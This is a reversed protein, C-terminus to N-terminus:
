KIQFDIHWVLAQNIDDCNDTCSDADNANSKVTLSTLPIKTAAFILLLIGIISSYSKIMEVICRSYFIVYGNSQCLVQPYGM